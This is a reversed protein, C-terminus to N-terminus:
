FKGYATSFQYYPSNTGHTLTHYGTNVDQLSGLRQNQLRDYKLYQNGATQASLLNLQSGLPVKLAMQTNMATSYDSPDGPVAAVAMDYSVPDIVGLGPSVSM